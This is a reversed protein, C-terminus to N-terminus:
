RWGLSIVFRHYDVWDLASLCLLAAGALALALITVDRKMRVV